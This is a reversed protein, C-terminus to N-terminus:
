AELRLPKNIVSHELGEEASRPDYQSAPFSWMWEEGDEGEWHLEGFILKHVAAFFLDEQGSKRDFGTVQIGSETQHYSFGLADLVEEVSHLNKDYDADMFSYWSETKQGGKFSGGRKFKDFDPQNMRKWRKLVAVKTENPITITGGTVRVDYGM